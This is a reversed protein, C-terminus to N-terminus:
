HGGLYDKIINPDCILQRGPGKRVVNGTELVYAYECIELATRANQEVLLITTGHTNLDVITKFIEKIVLPALGMSPEDLMLLKPQSMLARGISVMQQEGGSLTGSIQASRERLKPFLAYVQDLKSRIQKKRSSSALHIYAGLLLNDEVSLSTFLRRGEPVLSIGTKVISKSSMGTIEADSFHINGIQPRIVGSITKLLTSKGAGNAGVIAVIQGTRIELSIGRLARVSGYRVELNDIVLM